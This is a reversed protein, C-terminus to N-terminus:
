QLLRLLHDFQTTSSQCHLLHMFFTFRLLLEDDRLLVAIQHNHLQYYGSSIALQNGTSTLNTVSAFKRDSPAGRAKSCYDVHIIQTLLDIELPM